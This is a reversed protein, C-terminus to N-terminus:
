KGFIPNQVLGPIVPTIQLRILARKGFTDESVVSYELGLRINFPTKGWKVTRAGFFGIPVNLKDGSGAKHNYTITPNTGIQWADPLNYIFLYMFSGQNMDPEDDDQGAGGIKWFYNPYLVATWKETAYGVAVALGGGWQDQGLADVTATPFSFIPGAGLIWHGYDSKGYRSPLALVLPLQTDGIGSKHDFNNFGDPIPQTFTIPIVPRTILKWQDDGEGYLPFPLIPNFVMGSGYEENGQNINGDFSKLPQIDTTLTWLSGLPNALKHGVASLSSQKDGGAPAATSQSDGEAIANNGTFGLMVAVVYLGSLVKSMPVNKKM